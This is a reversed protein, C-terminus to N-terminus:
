EGECALGAVGDAGEADAAVVLDGHVHRHSTGFGFFDELATEFHLLVLQALSVERGRAVEPEADTFVDIQAYLIIRRNPNVPHIEVAAHSNM